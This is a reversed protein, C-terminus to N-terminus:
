LHTIKQNVESSKRQVTVRSLRPKVLTLQLTWGHDNVIQRVLGKIDSPKFEYNYIEGVSFDDSIGWRHIRRAGWLEFCKASYSEDSMQPGGAGFGSRLHARPFQRNEHQRRDRDLGPLENTVCSRRACRDIRADVMSWEIILDADDATRIRFPHPTHDLRMLTAQLTRKDVEPTDPNPKRRMGLLALRIAWDVIAGSFLVALVGVSIGLIVMPNM